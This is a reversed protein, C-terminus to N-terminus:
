VNSFISAMGFGVSEISKNGNVGYDKLLLMRSIPRGDNLVNDEDLFGYWSYNGLCVFLGDAIDGITDSSLLVYDSIPIVYLGTSSAREKYRGKSEKCGYNEEKIKLRGDGHIFDSVHVTRGSYVIRCGSVLGLFVLFSKLIFIKVTTM